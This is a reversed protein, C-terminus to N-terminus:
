RGGVGMRRLEITLDRGRNYGRAWLWERLREEVAGDNLGPHRRRINQRMLDVGVQILDLTARFKEAPTAAAATREM